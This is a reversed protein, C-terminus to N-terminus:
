KKKKKLKNADKHEQVILKIKDKARDERKTRIAEQESEFTKIDIDNYAEAIKRVIYGYDSTPYIGAYQDMMVKRLMIAKQEPKLSKLTSFVKEPTKKGLGLIRNLEQKAHFGAKDLVIYWLLAEEEVILKKTSEKKQTPHTKLATIIKAHVKEQDLERGRRTREQIKGIVTKINEGDTLVAENKCSTKIHITTTHGEQKGSIWFGKVKKGSKDYSNFDDYEKLPKVKHEDLIEQVEPIPDSYNRLFVISPESEVIERTRQVVFKQCKMLFCSKDM